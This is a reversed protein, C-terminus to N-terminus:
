KIIAMVKKQHALVAKSRCEDVQTSKRELYAAYGSSMGKPLSFKKTTIIREAYLDAIDNVEQSDLAGCKAILWEEFFPQNYGIRKRYEDKGILKADQSSVSFM